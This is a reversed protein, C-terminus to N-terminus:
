ISVYYFRKKLHIRLQNVVAEFVQNHEMSDIAFEYKIVEGKQTTFEIWNDGYYPTAIREDDKHFTSGRELKLLTITSFKIQKVVDNIQIDIGDNVIRLEGIVNRKWTSYHVIAYLVALVALIIFYYYLEPIKEMDESLSERKQASSGMFHAPVGIVILTLFLAGRLWKYKRYRYNEIIQTEFYM